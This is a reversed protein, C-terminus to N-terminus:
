PSPLHNFTYKGFAYLIILKSFFYVLYAFLSDVIKHNANLKADIKVIFPPFPNRKRKEEEEEEEVSQDIVGVM